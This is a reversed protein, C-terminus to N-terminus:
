YAFFPPLVVFAGVLIVLFNHTNNLEAMYYPGNIENTRRLILPPKTVCLQPTKPWEARNLAQEKWQNMKEVKGSDQWDLSSYSPYQRWGKKGDFIWSKHPEPLTVHARKRDLTYKKSCNRQERRYRSDLVQYRKGNTVKGTVGHM